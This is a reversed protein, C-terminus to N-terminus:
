VTVCVSFGSRQVGDDPLIPLPDVECVRVAQVLCHVGYM